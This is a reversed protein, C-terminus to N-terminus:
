HIAEISNLNFTSVTGTPALGVSFLCILQSIQQGASCFDGYESWVSFVVRVCALGVRREIFGIRM